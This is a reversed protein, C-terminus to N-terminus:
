IAWWLLLPIHPDDVDEKHTLLERVLALCDPGPLRKASCALQSRVVPSPEQKALEILRSLVEPSVKRADGLLRVTWARVDENAHQLATLAFTDDLGGSVYLAWLSELALQGKHDAIQKKLDPIIAPDRREALIRRAERAYWDNAHSLLAILEKSSL